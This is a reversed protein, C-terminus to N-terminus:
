KFDAELKKMAATVSARYTELEEPTSEAPIHIPEGFLVNITSFYKPVKFKDWSNFGWYSNPLCIMPLIPAGSKAAIVVIGIKCEQYPGKPGDVTIGASTGANLGDIYQMMAEKGGKDKNKKRSSGRIAVFNMKQAVYAAYDGDKSRSSLTLFPETWAHYSMGCLVQGHWASFIYSRKPNLAKAKEINELGQVKFKYSKVLSRVLIWVIYQLLKHIM